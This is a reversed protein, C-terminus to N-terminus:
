SVKAPNPYRRIQASRFVSMDMCFVACCRACYVNVYCRFNETLNRKSINKKEIKEVISMDIEKVVKLDSYKYAFLKSEM